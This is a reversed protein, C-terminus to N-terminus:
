PQIEYEPFRTGTLQRGDNRKTLPRVFSLDAPPTGRLDRTKELERTIDIFLNEFGYDNQELDPYYLTSRIISVKDITSMKETNSVMDPLIPYGKDKFFDAVRLYSGRLNKLGLQASNIFVCHRTDEIGLKEIYKLLKVTSQITQEDRETPIVILNLLKKYHVEAFEGTTISGPFDCIVIDNGSLAGGEALRDELWTGYLFKSRGSMKYEKIDDARCSILPWLKEKPPIYLDPNNKKLELRNALEKDRVGQIRMNFDAVAANVGYKYKLWSAYLISFSTKGVGGKESFFTITKM